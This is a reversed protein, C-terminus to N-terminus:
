SSQVHVPKRCDAAFKAQGLPLRRELGLAQGFRPTMGAIKENKGRNEVRQEQQAVPAKGPGRM